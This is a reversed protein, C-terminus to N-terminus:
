RGIKKLLEAAKQKFERDEPAWEADFPADVLRQLLVRAEEHKGQDALMEGLFLLASSNHTDHDLARRLHREAEQRSGGFLRPVTAYWQGLADDASGGQWAPDIALVRELESKIRGRYKLAQVLGFSEALRGMNAALWFHGEPRGSALRIATEGANVGRDLSTRRNKEADHTGLWYCVRALKWAAEFDASSRGAWLEAARVASPLDERQKYLDDPGLPAIAQAALVAVGLLALAVADLLHISRNV